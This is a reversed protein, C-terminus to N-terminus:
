SLGSSSACFSVITTSSIMIGLSFIMINVTHLFPKHQLVISKPDSSSEEHLFFSISSMTLSM